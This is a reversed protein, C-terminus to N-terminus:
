DKKKFVVVAGALLATALVASTAGIVSGCGGAGVVKVTFQQASSTDGNIEIDLVNDGEPLTNLFDAKLVIKGEDLYYNGDPEILGNAGFIEISDGSTVNAAIEIDAPAKKDFTGETAELGITLETSVNIRKIMLALNEIEETNTESFQYQIAFRIVASPNELVYASPVNVAARLVCWGTTEDVSYEGNSGDSLLATTLDHYYWGNTIGEGTVGSAWIGIRFYVPKTETGWDAGDKKFVIEVNLPAENEAAARITGPANWYMYIQGPRTEPNGQDNPGKELSGSDYIYLFQNTSDNKDRRIEVGQWTNVNRFGGIDASDVKSIDFIDYDETSTVKDPLEAAYKVFWDEHAFNKNATLTAASVSLSSIGISMATALVAIMAVLALFRKKM